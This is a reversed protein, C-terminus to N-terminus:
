PRRCAGAHSLLLFDSDHVCMCFFDELAVDLGARNASISIRLPAATMRMITKWAAYLRFKKPSVSIVVSRPIQSRMARNTWSVKIM